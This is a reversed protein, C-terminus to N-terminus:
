GATGTVEPDDSRYRPLGDDGIAYWDGKFEVYIHRDAALGTPEDLSGATVDIRSEETPDWFLGAGCRGCFGRRARASSQYWVLAGAPDEVSLAARPFSTYAGAHSHQRRCQGCHCFSVASPREAITYRVAGCLCGGTWVNRDDAGSM